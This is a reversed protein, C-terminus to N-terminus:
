ESEAAPQGWGLTASRLRSNWATYIVNVNSPM